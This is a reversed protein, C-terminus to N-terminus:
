DYKVGEAGPLRFVLPKKPPILENVWLAHVAVNNALVRDYIDNQIFIAQYRCGRMKEFEQVTCVHIQENNNSTLSYLSCDKYTLQFGM